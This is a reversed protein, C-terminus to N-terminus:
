PRSAPQRVSIGLSSAFAVSPEPSDGTPPLLQVLSRRSPVEVEAGLPAWARGGFDFSYLHAAPKEDDEVIVGALWLRGGASLLDYNYLVPADNTQDILSWQQLDSTHYLRVPGADRLTQHRKLERVAFVFGNGYRVIRPDVGEAILQAHVARNDVRAEAIWTVGAGVHDGYRASAIIHVQGKHEIIRPCCLDLAREELGGPQLVMRAEAILEPKPSSELVDRAPPTFIDRTLRAYQLIRTGGGHFEGVIAWDGNALRLADTPSPVVVYRRAPLVLHPRGPIRQEGQTVLPTLVWGYQSQSGETVSDTFLLGSRNGEVILRWATIPKVITEAKNQDGGTAPNLGSCFTFFALTTFFRTNMTM